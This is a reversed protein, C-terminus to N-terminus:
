HWLQAPLYCLSVPWRCGRAGSDNRTGLDPAGPGFEAAALVFLWRALCVPEHRVQVQPSRSPSESGPNGWLDGGSRVVFRDLHQYRCSSWARDRDASAGAISSRFYTSDYAAYPSGGAAPEGLHDRCRRLLHPGPRRPRAPAGSRGWQWSSVVAVTTETTRRVPPM